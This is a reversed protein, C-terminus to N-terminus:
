SLQELLAIAQKVRDVSGLQDVLRKANILDTASLNGNGVPASAVAKAAPAAAPASAVARAAPRGAPRGRRAAAIPKGSASRVKLYVANVLSTSVNHGEARLADRIQPRTAEPNNEMYTRITGSMNGDGGAPRGRRSGGASKPEAGAPKAYKIKNVLPISVQIGKEALAAQVVKGGASPNAALYERVADSKSAGAQEDKAM